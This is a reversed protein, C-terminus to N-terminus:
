DNRLRVRLKLPVSGMDLESRLKNELYRIYTRPLARNVFLTFTPPDTAGQTAYLVRAGDPAPHAAQASRVIRNVDRTPVRRHYDEITDALIPLLRNVGKGSIASVRLVPVDGLFRLKTDVQYTMDTRAETDLLEWKNLILVVPCGAADVREALRQDQHTVGQTADIVLLAVDSTDIAQM